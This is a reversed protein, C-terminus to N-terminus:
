APVIMLARALEDLLLAQHFLAQAAKVPLSIELQAVHVLHYDLVLAQRLSFDVPLSEAEL